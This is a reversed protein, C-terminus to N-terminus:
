GEDQLIDTFKKMRFISPVNSARKITARRVYAALFVFCCNRPTSTYNTDRKGARRARKVPLDFRVISPPHVPGTLYVRQAQLLSRWASHRQHTQARVYLPLPYDIMEYRRTDMNPVRPDGSNVVIAIIWKLKCYVYDHIRPTFQADPLSSSLGGGVTCL